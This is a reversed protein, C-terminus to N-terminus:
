KGENSEKKDTRGHDESGRSKAMKLFDQYDVLIVRGCKLCKLKFDAGTRLIEWEKGGCPHAKKTIIKDGVCYDM